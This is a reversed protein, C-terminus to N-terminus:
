GREPSGTSPDLRKHYFKSVKSLEYGLSEYFVHARSRQIRSSLKIMWVGDERAIREAEAMLASGVGRGRCVEAVLLQAVEYYPEFGLNVTKILQAYGVIRDEDKAVLIRNVGGDLEDISRLFTDKDFPYARDWDKFVEFLAEEEDTDFPVISVM